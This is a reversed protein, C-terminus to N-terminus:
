TLTKVEQYDVKNESASTKGEVNHSVDYNQLLKLSYVIEFM